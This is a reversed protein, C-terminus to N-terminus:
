EYLGRIDRWGMHSDTERDVAITIEFALGGEDEASDLFYGPNSPLLSGAHIKPLQGDGGEAHYKARAL